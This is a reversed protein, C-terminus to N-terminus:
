KNKLTIVEQELKQNKIKLESIEKNMEIMYLTLEEIKQLLKADMEGLNIGNAQVEAESPVEPLHHHDHVYSEVEALTRLDYDSEFVFDSWGNAEVKIERAGISGEVALKHSGTSTTGIGLNGGSTLVMDPDGIYGAGKTAFEMTSAPTNYSTQNTKVRLYAVQRHADSQGNPKTFAIGGLVGDNKNSGVSVWGMNNAGQVDLVIDDLNFIQYSSNTNHIGPNTTGIGVDGGSNIMLKTNGDIRFNHSNVGIMGSLKRGYYADTGNWYLLQTSLAGTKGVLASGSNLPIDQAFLPRTSILMLILLTRTM